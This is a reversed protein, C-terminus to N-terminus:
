FIITDLLFFFVQLGRLLICYSWSIHLVLLISSFSIKLHRQFRKILINSPCTSFLRKALWSININLILSLLVHGTRASLYSLLWANLATQHGHWIVPVNTNQRIPPFLLSVALVGWFKESIIISFWGYNRNHSIKQPNKQIYAYSPTLWVKMCATNMYTISSM